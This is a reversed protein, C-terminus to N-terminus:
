GTFIKIKSAKKRYKLLVGNQNDARRLGGWGIPHNGCGELHLISTSGFMTAAM